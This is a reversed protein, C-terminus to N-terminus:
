VQLIALSILVPTAASYQIIGILGDHMRRCGGEKGGVDVGFLFDLSM